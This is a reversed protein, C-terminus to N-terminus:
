FPVMEFRLQGGEEADRDRWRRHMESRESALNASADLWHVSAEADSFRSGLRGAYQGPRVKGAENISPQPLVIATPMSSPRGRLAYTAVAPISPWENADPANNPM